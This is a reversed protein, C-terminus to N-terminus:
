RPPGLALLPEFRWGFVELVVFFVGARRRDRHGERTRAPEHPPKRRRPGRHRANTQADFDRTFRRHTVPSRSAKPACDHTPCRLRRLRTRIELCHQGLDPHRWGRTSLASTTAGRSSYSCLPCHQRRRAVTATGRGSSPRAARDSTPERAPSGAKGMVVIARMGDDSDAQAFADNLERSTVWTWANQREPRNLWVHM